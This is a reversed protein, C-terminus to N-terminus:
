MHGRPPQGQLPDHIQRAGSRLTDVVDGALAPDRHAIVGIQHQDIELRLAHDAIVPNGAAAAPRGEVPALDLSPRLRGDQAALEYHAIVLQDTFWDALRHVEGLAKMSLLSIMVPQMTPQAWEGNPLCSPLSTSARISCTISAASASAPTSAASISRMKTPCKLAPKEFCSKGEESVRC